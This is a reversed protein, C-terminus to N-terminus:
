PAAIRVGRGFAFAVSSSGGAFTRPFRVLESVGFRQLAALPEPREAVDAMALEPRSLLGRLRGLSTGAGLVPLTLAGDGRGPAFAPTVSAALGRHAVPLARLGLVGLWQDVLHAGTGPPVWGTKDLGELRARGEWRAFTEDPAAVAAAARAPRLVGRVLDSTHNGLVGDLSTAGQAPKPRAGATARGWAAPAGLGGLLDGVVRNGVKESRDLLSVRRALVVDAKEPDNAFSARAWVLSRRDNGTAGPVLDAEVAESAAEASDRIAALVVDDTADTLVRPEFTMSEPAHDVFAAHGHDEIVTVLGYAALHGLLLHGSYPLTITRM